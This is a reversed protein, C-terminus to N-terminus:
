QRAFISVSGNFGSGRAGVLATMRGRSLAVTQGFRSATSCSGPFRAIEDWQQQISDFAFYYAVGHRRGTSDPALPAGVLLESDRLALSNGFYAPASGSPCALKSHFNWAGDERRYLYVSGSGQSRPAAVALWTTGVAVARGFRDGEVADTAVIREELTWVSSILRYVYAAGGAPEAVDSSSAGVVLTNGHLAIAEGFSHAQHADEAPALKQWLSWGTGDRHRRYVFVAGANPGAEDDGPASVAATNFHLAVARGFNDHAAAGDHPLREEQVFGDDTLGFVYAAGARDGSSARANPAGVLIRQDDVSVAYGFQDHEGIDESVLKQTELWGTDQRRYVNVAGSFPGYAHDRPRGVVMVQDEDRSIAVSVGSHQDMDERRRWRPKATESGHDDCLGNANLDDACLEFINFLRFL